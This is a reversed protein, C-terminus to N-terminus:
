PSALRKRLAEYSPKLSPLLKDGMEGLRALYSLAEERRDWDAYLISLRLYMEALGNPYGLGEAMRTSEIYEKEAAPYAKRYHAILGRNMAIQQMAMPDNMKSLVRYAEENDREAKEVEGLVLYLEVGNFFTWGVDRRNKAKEACVRAKNLEDIAERPHEVGFAVALNNHARFLEKYDHLPELTKLAKHFCDFSLAQDVPNDMGSYANGLDIYCRGVDRADEEPDLFALTTEIETRGIEFEGLKFAVRSLTRHAMVLGKRHGLKELLAIAEACYKRTSEIQDSERTADARSLLLLARLTAEGEPLKSLSRGYLEDAKVTEGISLHLDGLERLVDVEELRHDGPLAPLDELVRELYQIAVDPSFAKTALSAAYRNYLLSKDRVQGLHFHRGMEPIVAASPEPNLKEYAEAVKKHIVRIRSSSIDGYTQTITEERIFAYADGGIIERLIGKHVLKELMEALPEEEMELATALVAFDFERGITVAYSLVRRETEGIDALRNPPKSSTDKEARPDM